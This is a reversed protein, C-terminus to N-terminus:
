WRRHNICAASVEPRSLDRRSCFAAVRPITVQLCFAAQPPPAWGAAPPPQAQPTREARVLQIRQIRPGIVSRRNKSPEAPEEAPEPRRSRREKAGASSVWWSLVDICLGCCCSLAIFTMWRGIVVRGNWGTQVQYTEGRQTLGAMSPLNIAASM